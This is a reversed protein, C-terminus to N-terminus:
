CDSNKPPGSAYNWRLVLMSGPLSPQEAFLEGLRSNEVSVQPTSRLPRGGHDRLLNRFSPSASFVPMMGGDSQGVYSSTSCQCWSRAASTAFAIATLLHDEMAVPGIRGVARELVRSVSTSFSRRSASFRRVSSWTCSRAPTRMSRSHVSFSCCVSALSNARCKPWSRAITRSM